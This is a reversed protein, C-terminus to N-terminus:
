EQQEALVGWRVLIEQLQALGRHLQSKITGERAGTIEAIEAMTKGEFYRLVIVTRYKQRLALLARHLLRYEEEAAPREGAAPACDQSDRQMRLSAAQDCKHRRCHMRIENTAIRYLWARFPIQRWRYRGLHRFAALFVNSTLDETATRDLTSHYIYGFIEGYYKDYLRGATQPDRQAAWVMTRDDDRIEAQSALDCEFADNTM